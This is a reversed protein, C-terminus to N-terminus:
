IFIMNFDKAMRSTHIKYIQPVVAITTALGFLVEIYKFNVYRKNSACNIIHTINILDKNKLQLFKSYHIIKIDLKEKSLFYLNSGIFSNVGIILIKKKM